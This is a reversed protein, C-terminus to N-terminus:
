PKPRAPAFAIGQKWARCRGPDVTHFGGTYGDDARWVAGGRWHRGDSDHPRYLPPFALSVAYREVVFMWAVSGALAALYASIIYPDTLYVSLRSLRGAAVDGTALLTEVRWKIILQGYVIFLITPSIALLMKM